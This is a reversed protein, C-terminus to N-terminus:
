ARVRKFAFSIAVPSRFRMVHGGEGIIALVALTTIPQGANDQFNHVL